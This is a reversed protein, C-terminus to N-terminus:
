GRAWVRLRAQCFLILPMSLLCRIAEFAGARDIGLSARNALSRRHLNKDNVKGVPLLPVRM